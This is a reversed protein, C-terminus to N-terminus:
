AVSGHTKVESLSLLSCTVNHFEYRGEIQSNGIEGNSLFGTMPVNWINHISKIEDELLPGFSTHRGKCSVMLLADIHTLSKSLERFTGITQEVVSLDPTPCFRFRVDPDIKGAAILARNETDYILLSRLFSSGDDRQIQLPYQAAIAFIGESKSLRYNINDFYNLFLDLAPQHDIEYIINNASKTVTHTQGLPKWGSVALGKMRIKDTNLVLAALGCDCVGENSYIYTVAHQLNDGALGGYIPIERDSEQDKFGSIVGDGVVRVGSIFVIVGPNEFAETADNFLRVGSSYANLEEHSFSVIQFDSKSIDMLLLSMSGSSIQDNHIEGSGTCGILQIQYKACCKVAQRFDFDPASFGVAVTPVFDNLITNALVSSLETISHVLVSSAKM